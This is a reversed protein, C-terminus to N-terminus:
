NALLYEKIKLVGYKRLNSFADPQMLFDVFDDSVGVHDTIGNNPLRNGAGM